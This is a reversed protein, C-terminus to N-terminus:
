IINAYFVIISKELFMSALLLELQSLDRVTLIHSGKCILPLSPGKKIVIAVTYKGNSHEPRYIGLM